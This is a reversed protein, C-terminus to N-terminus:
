IFHFFNIGINTPKFMNKRVKNLSDRVIKAHRRSVSEDILRVQCDHSRGIIVESDFDHYKEIARDESNGTFVSIKGCNAYNIAKNNYNINNNEVLKKAPTHVRLSM